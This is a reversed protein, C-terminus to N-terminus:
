VEFPSAGDVDVQDGADYIVEWDRGTTQLQEHSWENRLTGVWKGSEKLFLHVWGAEWEPWRVRVHSGPTTPPQRKPKTISLLEFRNIISARTDLAMVRVAYREHYAKATFEEGTDTLRVEVVDGPEVNGWRPKVEEEVLEFHEPAHGGGFRELALGSIGLETEVVKDTDGVNMRESANVGLFGGMGMHYSGLSVRRVTQGKKFKERDSM